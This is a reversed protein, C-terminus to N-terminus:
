QGKKPGEIFKCVIMDQRSSNQKSIDNDGKAKGHTVGVVM